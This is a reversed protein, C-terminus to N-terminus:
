PQSRGAPYTLVATPQPCAFTVLGESELLRMAKGVTQRSCGAEQTITKISPLPNGPKINGDKIRTRLESAIQRQVRPDKISMDTGGKEM